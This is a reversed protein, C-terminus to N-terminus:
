VAGLILLGFRSHQELTDFNIFVNIQHELGQSIQAIFIISEKRPPDSLHKTGVNLQEIQNTPIMQAKSLLKHQVKPFNSHLAKQILM